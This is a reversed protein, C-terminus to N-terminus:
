QLRPPKKGESCFLRGVGLQILVFYKTVATDFIDLLKDEGDIIQQIRYSFANIYVTDFRDELTPDYASPFVKAVFQLTM